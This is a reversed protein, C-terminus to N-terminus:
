PRNEEAEARARAAALQEATDCDQGWDRDAVAETSAGAYLSRMSAGAVDALSALASRLAETRWASAVYNARGAGDALTVADATDLAALLAPVAGAIFPLDVALVVVRDADVHRLAADIAAVPGGGPPEERCWTVHELADENSRPGVVIVHRAEAVAAVARQLLTRDGVVLSAKDVGDLRSAAGGALVIADFM